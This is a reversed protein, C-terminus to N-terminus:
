KHYPENNIIRFGRYIQELLLLRIMQHTYTLKSFSWNFNGRKIVEKSIGYSGGIVFVFSSYGNLWAKQLIETYEVNNIEQGNVDLTVIFDDKEILAILKHGEENIVEDIEILRPNDKIKTEKVEIIDIKSYVKLRKLFEDIGEKLYHEKIKGVCLIKIKM